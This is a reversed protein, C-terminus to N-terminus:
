WFMYRIRRMFHISVTVAQPLTSLYLQATDVLGVRARRELAGLQEVLEELHSPGPAPGVVEQALGQGGVALADPVEGREPARAEAHERADKGHAGSTRAVVVREDGQDVQGVVLVARRHAAPHVALAAAEHGHGEAFSYCVIISNHYVINNYTM